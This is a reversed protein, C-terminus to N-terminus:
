VLDHWIDIFFNRSFWAYYYGAFTLIYLISVSVYFGVRRGMYNKGTRVIKEVVFKSMRGFNALLVYFIFAVSAMGIFTIAYRSSENAIEFIYKFFFVRLLNIFLIVAIALTYKITQTKIWQKAVKAQTSQKKRYTM